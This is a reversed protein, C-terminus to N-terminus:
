SYPNRHNIVIAKNNQTNRAQPKTSRRIGCFSIVRQFPNHILQYLRNQNHMNIAGSKKTSAVHVPYLKETDFELFTCGPSGTSKVVSSTKSTSVNTCSNSFGVAILLYTLACKLVSTVSMNAVFVSVLVSCTAASLLTNTLSKFVIM